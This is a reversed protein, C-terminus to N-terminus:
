PFEISLAKGLAADEASIAKPMIIRSNEDLVLYRPVWDLIIYNSLATKWAGEIRYHEGRINFKSIAAKWKSDDKDVSLFVYAVTETGAKARLDELKPLGVICDRCWSAWIDVLMKKGKYKDLMESFRLVEGNERVLNINMVSDPFSQQTVYLPVPQNQSWAEISLMLMVVVLIRM